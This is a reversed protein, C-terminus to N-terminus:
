LPVMAPRIETSIAAGERGLKAHYQVSEQGPEGDCQGSWFLERTRYNIIFQLIIM